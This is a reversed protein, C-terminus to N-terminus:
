KECSILTHYNTNNYKMIKKGKYFCSRFDVAHSNGRHHRDFITLSNGKTTIEAIM